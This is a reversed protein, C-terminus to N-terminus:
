PWASNTVWWFALKSHAARKIAKSVPDGKPKKRNHVDTFKKPYGRRILTARLFNEEQIAIFSWTRRIWSVPLVFPVICHQMWLFAIYLPWGSCKALQASIKFLLQKTFVIVPIQCKCQWFLDLVEVTFRLVSGIPQDFRSGSVQHIAIRTRVGSRWDSFIQNYDSVCSIWNWIKLEANYEASSNWILANTCRFQKSDTKKLTVSFISGISHASSVSTSDAWLFERWSTKKPKTVRQLRCVRVM